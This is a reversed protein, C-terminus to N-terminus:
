IVVSTSLRNMSSKLKSIKELGAETLHDQNQIFVYAKRWKLFNIHKTSLM